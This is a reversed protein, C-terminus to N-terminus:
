GKVSGALLGKIFYRGLLIYIILTPIATLFAGAMQVNWEVIQSGALNQLAVTIPQYKTNTVITVAFLFENWISTFQWIIVVIYGLISIPLLIRFYSSIMGCGDIFSAELIEDPIEAYYNRFILTTIPIGYIVHVIILAILRFAGPIRSIGFIDKISIIVSNIIQVLPILVSQYPIFIGFLIIVFIINAGKFKWKSLLYGNLSGIFASLITAPVAVIISNLFNPLLKDLAKIFPKLSLNLSPIWMSNINVEKYTKFATVLLIYIPILFYISFIVLISYKIIQSILKKENPNIL